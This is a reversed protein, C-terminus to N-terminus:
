AGALREMVPALADLYPENPTPTSVPSPLSPTPRACFATSTESKDVKYTMDTREQINSTATLQRATTQERGKSAM